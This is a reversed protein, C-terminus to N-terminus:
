NNLPVSDSSALCRDRSIRIKIQLFEASEDVELDSMWEPKNDLVDEVIAVAVADNIEVKADRDVDNRYVHRSFQDLIVVLASTSQPFKLWESHSRLVDESSTSKGRTNLKEVAHLLQSFNTRIETDVAALTDDSAFWKKKYVHDLSQKRSPFWYSLVDHTSRAVHADGVDHIALASLGGDISM